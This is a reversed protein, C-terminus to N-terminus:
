ARRSRNLKENEVIEIINKKIVVGEIGLTVIDPMDNKLEALLRDIYSPFASEYAIRWQEFGSIPGGKAIAEKTSMSHYIYSFIRNSLM